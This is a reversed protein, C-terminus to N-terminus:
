VILFKGINKHNHKNIEEYIFWVQFLKFWTGLYETRKHGHMNYKYCALVPLLEEYKNLRDIM